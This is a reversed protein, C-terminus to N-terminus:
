PVSVPQASIGWLLDSDDELSFDNVDFDAGLANVRATLTGSTPLAVLAPIDVQKTKSDFATIELIDNMADSYTVSHAKAGTVPEWTASSRTATVSTPPTLWTGAALPGATLGQRLIIAQAGMDGSATEAIATLRYTANAGFVTRKPALLSTTSPDLFEVLPMQIVEDKSVEIGVIATTETLSPPPTGLDIQLTELNGAEVQNLVLGSQSVGDAVTVGSKYAWGIIKSTDDDANLPTGNLDRDVIVALVTVSGTRSNLSWDCSNGAICFQMRGTQDLENAADGLDDTQSTLVFAAKANGQPVAITDWGAISGALQAQAVTTTQAELPITVNAGNVGVWMANRYSSAKVAVDQAGEVDEFTVFGKTDTTRQEGGVEVTAGVVPADTQADIIAVNIEGDIEGDGVGGGTIVRPDVDNSCGVLGVALTFSALRM